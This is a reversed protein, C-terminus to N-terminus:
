DINRYPDLDVSWSPLYSSYVYQMSQIYSIFYAHKKYHQMKYLVTICEYIRKLSIIWKMLCSSLM